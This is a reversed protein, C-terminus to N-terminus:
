KLDFMTQNLESGLLKIELGVDINEFELYEIFVVISQFHIVTM